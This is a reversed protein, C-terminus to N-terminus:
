RSRDTRMLGLRESSRVEDLNNKYQNRQWEDNREYMQVGISVAETVLGIVAGVAAGVPGGVTAGAVAGSGAAGIIGGATEIMTMTNQVRNQRATDGYRASITGIRYNIIEKGSNLVQKGLAMVGLGKLSKQLKELKEKKPDKTNKGTTNKLKAEAKSKSSPINQLDIHLIYEAM